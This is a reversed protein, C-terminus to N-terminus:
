CSPSSGLAEDCKYLAVHLIESCAIFTNKVDLLSHILTEYTMKNCEVIVAHSCTALTALAVTFTHFVYFCHTFNPYVFRLSFACRTKNRLM